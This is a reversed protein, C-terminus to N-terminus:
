TKTGGRGLCLRVVVMGGVSMGGTVALCSVHVAGGAIVAGGCPGQLGINGRALGSGHITLM